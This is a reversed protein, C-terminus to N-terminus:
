GTVESDQTMAVSYLIIAKILKDLTSDYQINEHESVYAMYANNVNESADGSIVSIYIEEAIEKTNLDTMTTTTTKTILTIM